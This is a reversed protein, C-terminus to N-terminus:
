LFHQSSAPVFFSGFHYKTGNWFFPDSLRDERKSGLIENIEKELPEPGSKLTVHSMWILCTQNMHSMVWAYPVHSMSIPCSENMQSNYWRCSVHHTHCFVKEIIVHRVWIVSYTRSVKKSPIGCRGIFAHHSVYSHMIHCMHVCWTVGRSSHKIYIIQHLQHSVYSNIMDCMPISWTVCIIYIIQHLQHSVYSHIMDCMPISWTVCIIHIIDTHSMYILHTHSMYILHTHSMIIHWMIDSM